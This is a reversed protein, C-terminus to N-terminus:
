GRFSHQPLHFTLLRFPLVFSQSAFFYSSLSPHSGIFAPEHHALGPAATTPRKNTGAAATTRSSCYSRAWLVVACLLSMTCGARLWVSVVCMCLCAYAWPMSGRSTTTTITSPSLPFVTVWGM